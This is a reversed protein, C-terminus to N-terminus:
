FLQQLTCLPTSASVLASAGSQPNIALGSHKHLQTQKTQESLLPGKSQGKPVLETQHVILACLFPSTM